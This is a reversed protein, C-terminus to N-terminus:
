TDQPVDIQLLSPLSVLLNPTCYVQRCMPLLRYVLAKVRKQTYLWLPTLLNTLFGMSLRIFAAIGYSSVM